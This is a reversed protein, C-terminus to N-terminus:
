PCAALIGSTQAWCGFFLLLLHSAVGIRVEAVGQEVDNGLEVGQTLEGSAALAVAGAREDPVELQRAAASIGM